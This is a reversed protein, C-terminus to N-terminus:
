TEGLVGALDLEEQRVHDHRDHVAQLERSLDDPLAGVNVDQQHRAVAVTDIGVRFPWEELLRESGFHERAFDALDQISRRGLWASVDRSMDQAM